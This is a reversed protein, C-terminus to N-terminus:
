TNAGIHCPITELYQGKKNIFFFSEILYSETQSAKQLQSVLAYGDQFRKATEFRNEFLEEGEKNIYMWGSDTAVAAVGESFGMSVEGEYSIKFRPSTKFKGWQDIFGLQEIADAYQALGESFSSCFLTHKLPIIEQGNSNIYGRFRTSCVVERGRSDIYEQITYDAPRKEVSCRDESFRGVLDYSPEVVLEVQSNIFGYKLENVVPYLM